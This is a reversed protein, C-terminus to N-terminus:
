RLGWVRVVHADKDIYIRTDRISNIDIVYNCKLKNLNIISYYQLIQICIKISKQIYSIM